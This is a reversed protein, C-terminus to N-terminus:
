WGVPVWGSYSRDVLGSFGQGRLRIGLHGNVCSASFAVAYQSRAKLWYPDAGILLPLVLWRSTRHRARLSEIRLLVSGAQSALVDDITDRLARLM